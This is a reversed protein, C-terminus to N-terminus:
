RDADEGDPTVAEPKPAVKPKAIVPAPAPAAAQVPPPPPVMPALGAAEAPLQIGPPLPEPPRASQAM